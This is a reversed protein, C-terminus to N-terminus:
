NLVRAFALGLIILRRWGDILASHTDSYPRIARCGDSLYDLYLRGNDQSIM